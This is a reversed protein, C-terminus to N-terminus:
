SVRFLWDDTIGDWKKIYRPIETNAHNWTFLIM